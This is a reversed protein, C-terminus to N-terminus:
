NNKQVLSDERAIKFVTTHSGLQGLVAIGKLEGRESPFTM